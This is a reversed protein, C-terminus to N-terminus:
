AFLDFRSGLASGLASTTSDSRGVDRYLAVGSNEAPAAAEEAEQALLEQRARSELQGAQAAVSHDQPSPDAPALATAIIHQAKPVTEEPTRGPSTDITVEGSVAYRKNDPGTTYSFSAGGLILDAGVAIHAQEHARVKQDVQKLKAVAQEQEATLGSVGTDAKSVSLHQSAKPPQPTFRGLTEFGLSKQAVSNTTQQIM